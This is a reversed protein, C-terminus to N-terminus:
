IEEVIANGSFLVTTKTYPVDMISYVGNDVGVVKGNDEQTPTPLPNSSGGKSYSRIIPMIPM